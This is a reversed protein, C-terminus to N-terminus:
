RQDNLAPAGPWCGGDTLGSEAQHAEVGPIREMQPAGDEAPVVHGDM